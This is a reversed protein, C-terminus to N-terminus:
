WRLRLALQVSRPAGVSYLPNQGGNPGGLGLGRGFMALSRGFLPNALNGDPNAFAPHNFVNFMEARFQLNVRETLRIQRRLTLDVQQLAFGRLVNRGLNGHVTQGAPSSFAALNLVRGGAFNAGELYVPQGPVLNPRLDYNGLVTAQRRFVDIPFASQARFVSDVGWDRLLWSAAHTRRYPVDYTLAGTFLHRVDFDSSGRNLAGAALADPL